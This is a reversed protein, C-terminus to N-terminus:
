YFGHRMTHRSIVIFIVRSHPNQRHDLLKELSAMFPQPQDMMHFNRLVVIQTADISSLFTLANALAGEHDGTMPDLAGDYMVSCLFQVVEPFTRLDRFRSDVLFTSVVSTKQLEAIARRVTALKGTGASGEIFFM